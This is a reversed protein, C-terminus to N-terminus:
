SAEELVALGRELRALSAGVAACLTIEFIQDDSYGAQRLQDFDEDTVKYAWRAVKDVYPALDGPVAAPPADGIVGAREHVSRRLEVNTHAEPTLLSESLRRVAAPVADSSM